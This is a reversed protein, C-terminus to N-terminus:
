PADKSSHPHALQIHHTTLEGAVNETEENIYGFRGLSYGNAWPPMMAHQHLTHQHSVVFLLFKNEDIPEESMRLYPVFFKPREPM